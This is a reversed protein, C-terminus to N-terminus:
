ICGWKIYLFHVGGCCRHLVPAIAICYRHLLGAIAICCPHLLSAVRTCYHHLLLAIGNCCGKVLEVVFPNWCFFNIVDAMLRGAVTTAELYIGSFFFGRKIQSYVWEMIEFEELSSHSLEM